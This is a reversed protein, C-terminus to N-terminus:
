ERYLQRIINQEKVVKAISFLHPLYSRNSLHKLCIDREKCAHSCLETPLRNKTRPISFATISTLLQHMKCLFLVPELMSALLKIHFLKIVLNNTTRMGEYRSKLDFYMQELHANSTKDNNPSHKNPNHDFIYHQKHRLLLSPIWLIIFFFSRIAKKYGTAIGLRINILQFGKSPKM